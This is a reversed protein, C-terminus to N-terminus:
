HTRVYHIPWSVGLGKYVCWHLDHTNYALSAEQARKGATIVGTILMIYYCPSLIVFESCEKRLM